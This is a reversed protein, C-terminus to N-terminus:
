LIKQFIGDISSFDGSHSPILERLCFGSAELYSGVAFLNGANRRLVSMEVLILRTRDLFASASRLVEMESGECDIKLLDITDIDADSLIKDLRTPYLETETYPVNDDPQIASSLQSAGTIFFRAPGDRDSIMAQYCDQPQRVNKLLLDFTEKVPEISIIRSAGLYFECFRNFQGSNAGVDVVLPSKQLYKRLKFSECLVRQISGTGFSDNYLYNKGAFEAQFFGCSPHYLRDRVFNLYKGLIMKLKLGPCIGPVSFLLSFDLNVSWRFLRLQALIGTFAKKLRNLLQM